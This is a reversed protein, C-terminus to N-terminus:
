GDPSDASDPSEFSESTPASPEPEPDPSDASAVEAADPDVAVTSAPAEDVAPSDVRDPSDALPNTRREGDPGTTSSSPVLDAVTPPVFMLDDDSVPGTSVGGRLSVPPPAPPAGGATVSVVGALVIIGAAAGALLRYRRM